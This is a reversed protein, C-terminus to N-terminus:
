PEYEMKQVNIAMILRKYKINEMLRLLMLKAVELNQVIDFDNLNIYMKLWDQVNFINDFKSLSKPSFYDKVM